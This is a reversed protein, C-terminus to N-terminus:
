DGAGHGNTTSNYLNTVQVATLVNTYIRIDDLNGIWPNVLDNYAGVTIPMSAGTTMGTYSGTNNQLLTAAIGNTYIAFATNTLGSAKTWVVHTWVNSPQPQSCRIRMIASADRHNVFIANTGGYQGVGWYLNTSGSLRGAVTRFASYGSSKVWASVSVPRDQPSNGFELTQGSGARGLDGGDFYLYNSGGGIWTPAATGSAPTLTNTALYGTDWYNYFADVPSSWSDLGFDWKAVMTTDTSITPPIGSNTHEAFTQEYYNTIWTAPLVTTAIFVSDLYGTVGYPAGIPYRGVTIPYQNGTGALQNGGPSGVSAFSLPQRVANSWFLFNNTFSTADWQGVYFQWRNQAM